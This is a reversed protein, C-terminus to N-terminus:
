VLKFYIELLENPKNYLATGSDRICLYLEKEYSYYKGEFVEMNVVFPIPDDLEGSHVKDVVTWLSAVESPKWNEQITHSQICKYLRDEYRYFEGINVTKGIRNEWKPYLAKVELAKQEDKIFKSYIIALQILQRLFKEDM